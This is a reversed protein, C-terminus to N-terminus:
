RLERFFRQWRPLFHRGPDLSAAVTTARGVIRERAVPGFHRSDLSRDRNDGMVFYHGDPVICSPFSEHCPPRAVLMVAHRAEGLEEAALIPLPEKLDVATVMGPDLPSYCLASGNVVLAGGRV